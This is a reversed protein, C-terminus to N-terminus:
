NKWWELDLKASPAVSVAPRLANLVSTPVLKKLISNISAGLIMRRTRPSYSLLSPLKSFAISRAAAMDRKGTWNIEWYTYLNRREEDTLRFEQGYRPEQECLEVMKMLNPFWKDSTVTRQDPHLQYVALMAPIYQGSALHAVRYWQDIDACMDVERRMGGTEEFFRRKVFTAHQPPITQFLISHPTILGSPNGSGVINGALDIAYEGGSIFGAEPYHQFAAAVARFAGPLYYDDSSQIALIEGNTHAVGKTVADVFGKDRASWWILHEGYKKLVAVTEDTSGGDSVIIEVRGPYDQKLISLLTREIYKGQNWSPIVISIFPFQEM